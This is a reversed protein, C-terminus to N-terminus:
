FCVGFQFATTFMSKVQGETRLMKEFRVDGFLRKGSKRTSLYGLSFWIGTKPLNKTEFEFKKTYSNQFYSSSVIGDIYIEPNVFGTLLLGGGLTPTSRPNSLNYKLGVPFSISPISIFYDKSFNVHNIGSTIETSNINRKLQSNSYRIELIFEFKDYLGFFSLGIVPVIPAYTHKEFRLDNSEMKLNTTSFGLMTYFLAKTNGLGINKGAQNKFRNTTRHQVYIDGSRYGYGKIGDPLYKIPDSEKCSKYICYKKRGSHSRYAMLGGLTDGALLVVYGKRYDIQAYSFLPFLFIALAGIKIAGIKRNM